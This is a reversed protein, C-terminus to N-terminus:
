KSFLFKGLINIYVTMSSVHLMEDNSISNKVKILKGVSM